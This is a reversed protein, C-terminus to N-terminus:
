GTCGGGLLRMVWGVAPFLLAVILTLQWNLHLLYALLALLIMSDRVLTLVSASLNTAGAQAEYVLTNTVGSATQATFLAPASDLLRQFTAV